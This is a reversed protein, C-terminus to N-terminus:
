SQSDNENLMEKILRWNSVMKLILATIAAATAYIFVAIASIWGINRLDIISSVVFIVAMLRVVLDIATPM